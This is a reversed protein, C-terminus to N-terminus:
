DHIWGFSVVLPAPAACLLGSCATYRFKIPSRASRHVTLTRKPALKAPCRYPRTACRSRHIHVTSRRSCMTIHAPITAIAQGTPISSGM